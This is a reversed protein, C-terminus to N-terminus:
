KILYKFVFYELNQSMCCLNNIGLIAMCLLFLENM